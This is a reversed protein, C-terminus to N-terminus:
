TTQTHARTPFFILIPQCHFDISFYMIFVSWIPLIITCLISLNLKIYMWLIIRCSVTNYSTIFWIIELAILAQLFSVFMPRTPNHSNSNLWLLWKRMVQVRLTQCVTVSAGGPPLMFYSVTCGFLYTKHM